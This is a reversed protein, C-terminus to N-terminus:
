ALQVKLSVPQGARSIGLTVQRGPPVERIMRRLQEVSEVATGNLTLIVDHEDKLKLDGLRESTVDRTDVGLYSSGGGFDEDSSYGWVQENPEYSFCEVAYSAVAVLSLVVLLALWISKRM